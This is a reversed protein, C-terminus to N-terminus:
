SHLLRAYLCPPLRKPASGSIALSLCRDPVVDGYATSLRRSKLLEALEKEVATKAAPTAAVNEQLKGRIGEYKTGGM